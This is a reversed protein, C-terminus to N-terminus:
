QQELSRLRGLVEATSYWVGSAEQRRLEAEDFVPEDLVYESADAGPVVRALIRGEEDCIELPMSFNALRNRLLDDATVRTM